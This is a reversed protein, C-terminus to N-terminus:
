PRSRSLLKTQAPSPRCPPTLPLIAKKPLNERRTSRNSACDARPPSCSRHYASWCNHTTSNGAAAKADSPRRGGVEAAWRTSEITGTSIHLSQSSPGRSSPRCHWRLDFNRQSAPGPKCRCHCAPLVCRGAGQQRAVEARDHKMPTIIAFALDLSCRRTTPEGRCRFFVTCREGFPEM